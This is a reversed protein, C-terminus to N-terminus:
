GQRGFRRHAQSFEGACLAGVISVEGGLVLAACIEALRAASGDGECDMIRLAERATPMRTGGGVTGVILNPLNVACYLDGAGNAELRTVGVAAESICAMDQGTALFVAALGNAV